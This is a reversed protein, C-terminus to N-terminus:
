NQSPHAKPILYGMSKVVSPIYLFNLKGIHLFNFFLWKSVRKVDHWKTGSLGGLDFLCLYPSFPIDNKKLWGKWMFSLIIIRIRDTHCMKIELSHTELNIFNPKCYWLRTEWILTTFSRLGNMLNTHTALSIFKVQKIWPSLTKHVQFILSSGWLMIWTVAASLWTPLSNQM